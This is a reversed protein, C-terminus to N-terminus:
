TAAFRPNEVVTPRGNRAVVLRAFGAAEITDYDHGADGPYAYLLVLPEGGTNISRHGWHPPVYAVTGPAVELARWDGQRTQLLLLGTGRLGYYVEGTGSKRHYHGRTMFYEDGVRGPLLVTIGHSLHGETEPVPAVLVEYIVPDDRSLIAACAQQDSFVTRLDSLRRVLRTAGPELSDGQPGISTAFPELLDM